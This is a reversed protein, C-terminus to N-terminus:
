FKLVNVMVCIKILGRHCDSTTCLLYHCFASYHQCQDTKYAHFLTGEILEVFVGNLHRKVTLVM